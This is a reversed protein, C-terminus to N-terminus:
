SKEDTGKEDKLIKALREGVIHGIMEYGKPTFHLSDDWREEREEETIAHYPMRAHLDLSWVNEMEREWDKILANLEAREKDLMHSQIEPITMILVKADYSLPLELISKISDLIQTPTSRYAMDNTGGLFIVWDYPSTDTNSPDPLDSDRSLM